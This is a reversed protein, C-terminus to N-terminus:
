PDTAPGLWVWADRQSPFASVYEVRTVGAAGFAQLLAPDIDQLLTWRPDTVSCGYIGLYPEHRRVGAAIMTCHAVQVFRGHDVHATPIVAEGHNACDAGNTVACRGKNVGVTIARVHVKLVKLSGVAHPLPAGAHSPRAFLTAAPVVAHPSLMTAILVAPPQGQLRPGWGVVPELVVLSGHRSTPQRVGRTGSKTWRATGTLRAAGEGHQDGDAGRWQGGPM